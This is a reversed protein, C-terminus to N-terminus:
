RGDWSRSSDRDPIRLWNQASGYPRGFSQEVEDEFGMISLGQHWNRLSARARSRCRRQLPPYDTLFRKVGFPRNSFRVNLQMAIDAAFSRRPPAGIGSVDAEVLHLDHARDLAAARCGESAMDCAALIARVGDDGVIGAAVPM